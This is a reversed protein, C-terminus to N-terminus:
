SGTEDAPASALAAARVAPAIAQAILAYGASSPHFRDPSFLAPDQAFAAGITADLGAVQGGEILTATVQARRLQASWAQVLGRLGAPVHPVVSLDPAPVVVVQAGAARLDRVAARLAAAARDVPTARTLDNAGVILVAVDPRWTAAGRVQGALDASRAGPVAFVRTTATFGAGALHHALRAAPTDATRTAGLGYAISDGLLALRLTM